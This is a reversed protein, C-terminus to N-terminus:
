FIIRSLKISDVVESSRMIQDINIDCHHDIYQM